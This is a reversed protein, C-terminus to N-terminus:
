NVLRIIETRHTRGAAAMARDANRLSLDFGRRRLKEAIASVKRDPWSRRLAIALERNRQDLPGRQAPNHITTPVNLELLPFPYLTYIPIGTEWYRDMLQDIPLELSSRRMFSAMLTRAAAKSLVYGQNGCPPWTFRYLSSRAFTALHKAPVFYRAYLKFYGINLLDVVRVIAGLDTAPDLLVDDELVVIYDLDDRAIFDAIITMHSAACSIEAPSMVSGYKKFTQLEDYRVPVRDAAVADFFSWAGVGGRDMMERVRARRDDASALSLVKIEFACAETNDLHM